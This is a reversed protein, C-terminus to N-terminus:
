FCENKAGWKCPGERRTLRVSYMSFHTMGKLTEVNGERRYYYHISHLPPLLSLPTCVHLSARPRASPLALHNVSIKFKFVSFNAEWQVIQGRGIDLRCSKRM